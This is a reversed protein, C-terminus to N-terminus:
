SAVGRVRARQRRASRAGRFRAVQQGSSAGQPQRTPAVTSAESNKRHSAKEIAEVLRAQFEDDPQTTRYRIAVSGTMVNVSVDEVGEWTRILAGLRDAFNRNARVQAMGLRIRGKMRHLIRTSRVNVPAEAVIEELSVPQDKHLSVSLGELRALHDLLRKLLQQVAALRERGGLHGAREARDIAEVATRVARGGYLGAKTSQADRFDREFDVATVIAFETLASASEGAELSTHGVRGLVTHGLSEQEAASFRFAGDGFRERDDFTRSLAVILEIVKPDRTHPGYRLNVAAWAFFQAFTWLSEIAAGSVSGDGDGHERKALILGRGDLLRDIQREMQHAAILLPNVYLAAAQDRQLRRVEKHEERWTWATWVAAVVASFISLITVPDM